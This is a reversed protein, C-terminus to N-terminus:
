IDGKSLNFLLLHKILQEELQMRETLLRKKEYGLRYVHGIKQQKELSPLEVILTRLMQISLATIISGQTATRLQKRCSPHKNIFWELYRAELQENPEIVAFNSPILKGAHEPRVTVARLSTLNILVMGEKTIPLDKMKIKLVAIEQLKDGVRYDEGISENMEKMTYLPITIAEPGPMTQVRSLVVGQTVSAIEEIKM